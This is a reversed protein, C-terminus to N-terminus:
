LCIVSCPERCQNRIWIPSSVRLVAVSWIDTGVEAAAMHHFLGTLPLFILADYMNGTSLIDQVRPHFLAAFTGKWCHSYSPAQTLTIILTNLPSHQMWVPSHYCSCDQLLETHSQEEFPAPKSGKDTFTVNPRTTIDLLIVAHVSAKTPDSCLMCRGMALPHSGSDICKLLEWKFQPWQTCTLSSFHGHAEM